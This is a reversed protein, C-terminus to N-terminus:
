ARAGYHSELFPRYDDSGHRLCIWPKHSGHYDSGVTPLLDLAAAATCVRDSDEEGTEGHIVEVGQLGFTKFTELTEAFEAPTMAQNGHLWNKYLAPHALVPVGGTERIAQIAEEAPPRKRPVYAAKGESLYTDFAEDVSTVIGKRILLQALHIRGVVYGGENSLDEYSVPIGLDQLKQCILRNREDRDRRRQALFDDIRRVNGDPYYALLHVEQGKYDCSIEVGPVCIPLDMRLQSLKDYVTSIIENGQITDHDTLAFSKLDNAMVEQVLQAPSSKGDSTNTHTHLDTGGKWVLDWMFALSRANAEQAEERDITELDSNWINSHNTKM